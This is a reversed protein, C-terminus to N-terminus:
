GIADALASELQDLETGLTRLKRRRLEPSLRAAATARARLERHRAALSTAVTDDLSGIDTIADGLADLRRLFAGAGYRDKIVGRVRTGDEGRTARDNRVQAAWRLTSKSADALAKKVEPRNLLKLLGAGVTMM